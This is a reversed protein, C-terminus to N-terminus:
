EPRWALLRPEYGRRNAMPWPRRHQAANFICHILLYGRNHGAAMHERPIAIRVREAIPPGILRGM